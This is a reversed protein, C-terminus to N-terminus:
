VTIVKYIYKKKENKKQQFNFNKTLNKENEKKM